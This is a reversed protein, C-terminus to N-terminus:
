RRFSIDLPSGSRGPVILGVGPPNETAAFVNGNVAVPEPAPDDPLDLTVEINDARGYAAYTALAAFLGQFVWHDAAAATEYVTGLETLARQKAPDDTNLAVSRHMADILRMALPMPAVATDSPTILTGDGMRMAPRWGRDANVADLRSEEVALLAQETLALALAFTQEADSTALARVILEAAQEYRGQEQRLVIRKAIQVLEEHQQRTRM